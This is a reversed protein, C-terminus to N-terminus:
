TEGLAVVIAQFGFCLLPRFNNISTQSRASLDDLWPEDDYVSYRGSGGVLVADVGQTVRDASTKENLCDHRLIQEVPIGLRSAFSQHEEVIVPDDADRAQLLRFTKM